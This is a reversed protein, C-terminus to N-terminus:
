YSTYLAQLAQAREQNVALGERVLLAVLGRHIPACCDSRVHVHGDSHRHDLGGESTRFEAFPHYFCIRLASSGTINSDAAPAPAPAPPTPAPATPTATAATRSTITVNTLSAGGIAARSGGEDAEVELAAQLMENFLKTIRIRSELLGYFPVRPNEDSSDAHISRIQM